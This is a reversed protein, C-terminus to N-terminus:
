VSFSVRPARTPSWDSWLIRALPFSVLIYQVPVKRGCGHHTSRAISLDRVSQMVKSSYSRAKCGSQYFPRQLRLLGSSLYSTLGTIYFFLHDGIALAFWELSSKKVIEWAFKHLRLSKFSIYFSFACKGWKGTESAAKLQAPLRISCFWSHNELSM